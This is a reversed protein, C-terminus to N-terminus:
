SAHMLPIAGYPCICDFPVACLESMLVNFLFVQGFSGTCTVSYMVVAVALRRHM